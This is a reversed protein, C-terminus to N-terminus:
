SPIEERAKQLETLAHAAWDAHSQVSMIGQTVALRAQLPMVNGPGDLWARLGQAHSSASDKLSTLLNVTLSRDPHGHLFAFRLMVASMQKAVHEPTMPESLWADFAERGSASLHFVSGRSVKRAEVLGMKQLAKLAPYISGPSSSYNGLPTTEFVMRLAYGSRPEDRILGLLAYGLSTIPKITM